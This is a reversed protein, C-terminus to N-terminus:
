GLEDFLLDTNPPETGNWVWSLTVVVGHEYDGQGGHTQRAKRRAEIAFSYEEDITEPMASRQRRSLPPGPFAMRGHLASMADPGAVWRCTAVVGSLFDVDVPMSARALQEEARAWVEAFTQRSVRLNGPPVKPLVEAVLAM